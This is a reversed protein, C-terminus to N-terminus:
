KAPVRAKLEEFWNLVVRFQPTAPAGSSEPESAPVVGIFRGDPLIDWARAEGSTRNGTVRARVTVPSGFTVGPQTTFSVVALEGSAATPVYFLEAGKPGWVPHFDIQQKPIQYRSGTAPVPQVYVGRNSSSSGGALPTSSYAIWRGDPSFVSGIPEASQVAGFPAAKRDTVTVTWLSFTTGKAVSFSVLTGDSSWSEPVHV